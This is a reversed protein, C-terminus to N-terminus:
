ESILTFYTIKLDDEVVNSEGKRTIVAITFVSRQPGIKVTRNAAERTVEDKYFFDRIKNIAADSLQHAM